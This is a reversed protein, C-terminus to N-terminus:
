DTLCSSTSVKSSVRRAPRAGFAWALAGPADGARYATRQGFGARWLLYLLVVQGYCDRGAAGCMVWSRELRM